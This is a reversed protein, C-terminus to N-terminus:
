KASDAPGLAAVLLDKLDPFENLSERLRRERGAGDPQFDPGGQGHELWELDAKLIAALQRMRARTPISRGKFWTQPVQPKLPPKFLEALWTARRSVNARYDSHHECATEL